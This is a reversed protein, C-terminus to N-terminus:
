AISNTSPSVRSLRMPREQRSSTPSASSIHRLDGGPQSRYVFLVENVPVDFRTVDHDARFIVASQPCLENIEPRAFDARHAPQDFRSRLCRPGKAPVGSNAPGSCNAPTGTSM